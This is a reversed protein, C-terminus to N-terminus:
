EIMRADIHRGADPMEMNLNIASRPDPGFSAAPRDDDSTKRCSRVLNLNRGYVCIMM